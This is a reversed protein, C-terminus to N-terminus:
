ADESTYPVAMPAAIRLPSIRDNWKLVMNIFVNEEISEPIVEDADITVQIGENGGYLDGGNTLLWALYSGGCQIQRMADYNDDSDDDIKANATRKKALKIVRQHSITKETSEPLPVDGTVTLARIKTAGPDTNSINTTWENLDEWNTLPNGVNRLFINCLGGEKTRPACESFKFTPLSFSCNDPCTIQKSM